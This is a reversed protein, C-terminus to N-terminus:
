ESVPVPYYGTWVVVCDEEHAWAEGDPVAVPCDQVRGRDVIMCSQLDEALLIWMDEDDFLNPWWDVVNPPVVLLGVGPEWWPWLYTVDASLSRASGEILDGARSAPAVGQLRLWSKGSPEDFSMEPGLRLLRRVAQFADDDDRVELPM